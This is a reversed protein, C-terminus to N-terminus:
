ISRHHADPEPRRFRVPGGQCESTSNPMRMAARSSCLETRLIRVKEPAQISLTVRGGSISLVKLVVDGILLEEGQKRSLVLM